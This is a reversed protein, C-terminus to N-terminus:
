PVHQHEKSEVTEMINKYCTLFLTMRPMKKM